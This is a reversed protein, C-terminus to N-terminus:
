YKTLTVLGSHYSTELVQLKHSSSVLPVRLTTNLHTASLTTTALPTSFYRNLQSASFHPSLRSHRDNLHLLANTLHDSSFLLRSPFGEDAQDLVQDLLLCFTHLTQLTAELQVQLRLLTAVVEEEKEREKGEELLANLKGHLGQLEEGEREIANAVEDVEGMGDGERLHLVGKEFSAQLEQYSQETALGITNHVLSGVMGLPSSERRRRHRERGGFSMEKLNTLSHKVQTALTL